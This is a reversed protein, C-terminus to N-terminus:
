YKDFMKSLPGVTWKNHVVSFDGGGWFFGRAGFQHATFDSNRPNTRYISAVVCRPKINWLSFVIPDRSSSIVKYSTSLNFMFHTCCCFFFFVLFISFVKLFFSSFHSFHSFHISVQFTWSKSFFLPPPKGISTLVVVRCKYVSFLFHRRSTATTTSRGAQLEKWEFSSAWMALLHSCFWIQTKVRITESCLPTKEHWVELM